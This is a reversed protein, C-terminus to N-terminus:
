RENLKLIMISLIYFTNCIQHGCLFCEPSCYIAVGCIPCVTGVEIVKDCYHCKLVM